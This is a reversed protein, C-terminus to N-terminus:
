AGYREVFTKQSMLLYNLGEVLGLIAPIFTWCFVLYLIGQVGKGLYFKHAGLGGLLIALVGAVTKNKGDATTPGLPSTSPPPMQRVGCHPCIEAKANIVSGCETCFKEDARKARPANSGPAAVNTENGKAQPLTAAASQSKAAMAAEVKDYIAGCSPCAESPAGSAEANMHQCKLCTRIM